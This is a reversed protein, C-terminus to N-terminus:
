FKNLTEILSIRSAAKTAIYDVTEEEGSSLDWYTIFRTGKPFPKDIGFETLLGKLVGVEDAINVSSGFTLIIVEERNNKDCLYPCPIIIKKRSKSLYSGDVTINSDYFRYNDIPKTYKSEALLKINDLFKITLPSKKDRDFYEELPNCNQYEYVQRLVVATDRIAFAYLLKQKKSRNSNYNFYGQYFKYLSSIRM